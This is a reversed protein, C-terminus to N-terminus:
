IRFRSMLRSSLLSSCSGRPHSEQHRIGESSPSFRTFLYTDRYFIHPVFDYFIHRIFLSPSLYILLVYLPYQVKPLSFQSPCLPIPFVSVLSFLSRLPGRFTRFYFHRCLVLCLFVLVYSRSSRGPQYPLFSLSIVCSGYILFLIIVSLLTMRSVMTVHPRVKTYLISVPYSNVPGKVTLITCFDVSSVDENNYLSM